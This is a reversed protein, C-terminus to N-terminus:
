GCLVQKRAAVRSFKHLKIFNEDGKQIKIQKRHHFYAHTHTQTTYFGRGFQGFKYNIIHHFSCQSQM